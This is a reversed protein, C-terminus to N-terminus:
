YRRGTKKGLLEIGSINWEKSSDLKLRIQIFGTERLLYLETELESFSGIEEWVAAQTADQTDGYRVQVVGTAKEHRLVLLDIFARGDRGGLALPKTVLTPTLGRALRSLERVLGTQFGIVPPYKGKGAAACEYPMTSFSITENLINLVPAWYGNVTPLKWTITSQRTNCLVSVRSAQSWDTNWRSWDGLRPYAVAQVNLGDTVFIGGEHLIYHRDSYVAVGNKSKVGTGVVGRQVSFFFTDDLNIIHAGNETYAILAPGLHEVCTFGGQADRVVQEGATENGPISPDWATLDDRKSFVFQTDEAPISAPAYTGKLNFFLAHAGLVRVIEAAATPFNEIDKFDTDIGYRLYQPKDVGNTALVWNGWQAFSWAVAVETTNGSYGGAKSVDTTTAGNYLYLATDTGFVLLRQGDANVQQWVGRLPDSTMQALTSTISANDFLPVADDFEGPQADWLGSRDTIVQNGYAPAIGAGTFVVDYAEIFIPSSEDTAGPMIGTMLQELGLSLLSAAM